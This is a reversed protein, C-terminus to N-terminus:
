NCKGTTKTTSTNCYICLSLSIDPWEGYIGLQSIAQEKLLDNYSSDIIIKQLLAKVKELETNSILDRYFGLMRISEETFNSNKNESIISQLDGLFEIPPNEWLHYFLEVTSSDWSNNRYATNIKEITKQM